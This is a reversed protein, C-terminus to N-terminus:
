RISVYKWILGGFFSLLLPLLFFFGIKLVNWIKQLYYSYCDPRSFEPLTTEKNNRLDFRLCLFDFESHNEINLLINTYENEYNEIKVIDNSEEARKVRSYLEDLKIYCNKMAMSRESYNLSTIFISVILASISGFVLYIDLNVNPYKMNWISIFVLVTSYWVVLLNTTKNANVFRQESKIRTKRTIWIKDSLM